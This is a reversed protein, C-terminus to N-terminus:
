KKGGTRAAKEGELAQLLVKKQTGSLADLALATDTDSVGLGDFRTYIEGALTNADWKLFGLLAIISRTAADTPQPVPKETPQAGEAKVRRVQPAPEPEPEPECAAPEFKPSEYPSVPLPEAEIIEGTELDTTAGMEDPTYLGLLVDAFTARAADAVARWKYMTAPQKKYNDKGNLQMAAAEAPGFRATYASRGKRKITVTAGDKGSDIQINEVQGSRNILALMLQPSVTPKGQIVNITNLAAMAGIGLERGTLIIAMAQEPTKISQPLFGTKVLVEAQQRIVAWSGMDSDHLQLATSM